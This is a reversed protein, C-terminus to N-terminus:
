AMLTRFSLEAMIEDAWKELQIPTIGYKDNSLLCGSLTLKDITCDNQDRVFLGGSGDRLFLDYARRILGERDRDSVKAFTHNDFMFWISLMIESGAAWHPKSM